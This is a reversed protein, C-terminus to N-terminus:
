IKIINWLLCIKIILFKQGGSYMMFIKLEYELLLSCNMEIVWCKQSKQINIM